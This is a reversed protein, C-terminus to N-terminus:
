VGWRGLFNPVKLSLWGRSRFLSFGSFRLRGQVRLAMLQVGPAVMCRVRVM